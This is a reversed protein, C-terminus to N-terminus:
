AGIELLDLYLMGGRNQHTANSSSRAYLRYTIASTTNHSNDYLSIPLMRYVDYRTQQSANFESDWVQSTNPTGGTVETDSNSPSGSDRRLSFGFQLYTTSSVDVGYTIFGNGIIVSNSATPTISVTRGTDTLTSSTINWNGSAADFSGSSAKVHQLVKGGVGSPLATVNSISTNNIGSPLIVGGTTINNALTRTIAGM